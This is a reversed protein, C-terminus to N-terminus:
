PELFLTDFLFRYDPGLSGAFRFIHEPIPPWPVLSGAPFYRCTQHHGMKGGKKMRRIMLRTFIGHSDEGNAEVDGPVSM